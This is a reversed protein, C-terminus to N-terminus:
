NKMERKRKKRSRDLIQLKYSPDRLQWLQMTQQPFPSSSSIIPSRVTSSTIKCANVTGIHNPYLPQDTVMVPYRTNAMWLGCWPWEPITNAIAMCAWSHWWGSVDCKWQGKREKTKDKHDDIPVRIPKLNHTYYYSLGLNSWKNSVGQIEYKKVWFFFFSNWVKGVMPMSMWIISTPSYHITPSFFSYIDSFLSITM